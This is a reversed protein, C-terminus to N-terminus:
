NMHGLISDFATKLVDGFPSLAVVLAVIIVGGAVAYEISTLGAQRQPLAAM